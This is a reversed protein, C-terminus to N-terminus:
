ATINDYQLCCNTLKRTLIFYLLTVYLEGQIVGHLRIPSTVTLKM